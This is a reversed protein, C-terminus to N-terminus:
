DDGAVRARTTRLDSSADLAPRAAPDGVHVDIRRQLDNIIKALNATETPDVAEALRLRHRYHEAELERVRLLALERLDDETLTEYPPM